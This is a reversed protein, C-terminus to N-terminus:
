KILAMPGSITALDDLSRFYNGAGIGFPNNGIRGWMSAEQHITQGLHGVGTVKVMNRYTGNVM